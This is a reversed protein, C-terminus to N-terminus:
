LYEMVQQPTYVRRLPALLIDSKKLSFDAAICETIPAIKPSHKRCFLRGAIPPHWPMPRKCNLLM